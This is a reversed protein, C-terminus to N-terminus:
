FGFRVGIPNPMWLALLMCAFFGVVFSRAKRLLNGDPYLRRYERRLKGDSDVSWLWFREKVPALEIVRDNAAWSCSGSYIACAVGCAWVLLAGNRGLSSELSGRM